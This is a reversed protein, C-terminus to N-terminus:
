CCEGHIVLASSQNAKGAENTAECTYVGRHALQLSGFTLTSSYPDLQKIQVHSAADSASLPRGDKFWNIDVPLDGRVVTCMINYRQGRHLSKAFAFPEVQPPVRVLVQVQGTASADGLAWKARCVYEGADNLENLESILLTGNPFM